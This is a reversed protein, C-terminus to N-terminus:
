VKATQYKKTLESWRRGCERAPEAIKEPVTQYPPRIPGGNCYGAANIRIKELQINFSAFLEADRVIPEVPENSWAIDNSVAEARATDGALIANMVALAPAPGMSAATSWCATTTEPSLKMFEYVGSDNPLFKIKGGSAELAPPFDKPRSFKSAVVNPAQQAVGRWFEPAFPFRFARSNGYVMVALQPFTKCFDAYYEVAMETTLPQWMPLGLLVGDAGCAQAFKTRKVVEHVGLATTGVFAPIRKRVTALVCDVFAEYEEGTLTACEGTTGLVILGSSGDVILKDVVRATEDLDVTATADWRDADAKAPTPIIAYLGRFDNSTMM